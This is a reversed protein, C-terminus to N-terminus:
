GYANEVEELVLEVVGKLTYERPIKYVKFGADEVAKATVHGIPVIRSKELVEQALAGGISLFSKLNSPSTFSVFDFGKTLEGCLVGSVEKNVVTRYVVVEEVVAGNKELFEIFVRRGKEPRVVLFKKGTLEENRFLEVLGEGSFNDPTLPKFGLDELSKATSKGVAVVSTCKLVDPSIRSFFHRVGNKSSFVAYDWFGPELNFPIAETKILPVDVVDINKELLKRKLVDNLRSSVFFRIPM